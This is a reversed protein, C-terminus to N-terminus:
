FVMTEKKEASLCDYVEDALSEPTIEAIRMYSYPKEEIATKKDLFAAENVLWDGILEVCYDLITDYSDDFFTSASQNGLFQDFLTMGNFDAVAVYVLTNKDIKM